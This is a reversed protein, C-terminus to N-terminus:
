ESSFGHIILIGIIIFAIGLLTAFGMPQKYYLWAVLSLIVIGLGSWVSYVVAVPLDRLTVSMFYFSFITGVVVVLTAPINSFGDSEKLASTAIVEAVVAISLYIWPTSM